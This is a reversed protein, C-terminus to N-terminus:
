RLRSGLDLDHVLSRVLAIGEPNTHVGDSSLSQDMAGDERSLVHTADLVLAHLPGDYAEVEAALRARLRESMSVREPLEGNIPFMSLKPINGSQPGPVVFVVAPAGLEEGLACIRRVYDGVFDLNFGPEDRRPVLHCRVDIEGASYFLVANRGGLRRLLRAARHVKPPIGKTATTFMLRPGLHWLVQGETGVSLPAAHLERNFCLANSDGVWLELPRKRRLGVLLHVVAYATIGYARLRRALARIRLRRVISPPTVVAQGTM